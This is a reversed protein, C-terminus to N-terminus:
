MKQRAQLANGLTVEDAFEIDGGIPLGRAIKTIKILPKEALLKAIHLATAEGEMTPNTAIIIEKINNKEVRKLLEALRIQEPGIGEPHNILGGLVHYIGNFQATKELSIVDRPEAVVCIIQHDRSIDQCIECEAKETYTFCSHCTKVSNKLERLRQALNEIERAPQKLLYFVFRESTKHGIGPLKNFEKILNYIAPPIVKM